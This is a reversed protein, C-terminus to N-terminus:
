GVLKMTYKRALFSMGEPKVLTVTQNHGNPLVTTVVEFHKAYEAYPLNESTLIGDARLQRFFKNPGFGLIKAITGIKQSNKTAMLAEWEAVKPANARAEAELRIRESEVRIFAHAWEIATRPQEIQLRLRRECEIFYARVKKGQETGAMMCFSKFCEVTLMIEERITAGIEREVTKHFSTFDADQAFNETLIRKASDKRSYGIWQWAQDFDVPFPDASAAIQELEQNVSM